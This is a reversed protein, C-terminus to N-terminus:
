LILRNISAFLSHTGTFRYCPGFRGILLLSGAKSGRSVKSASLILCSKEITIKIRNFNVSSCKLPVKHANGPPASIHLTEDTRTEEKGKPHEKETKIELTPSKPLDLEDSDSLELEILDSNKHSM